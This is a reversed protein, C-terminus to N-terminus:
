RSLNGVGGGTKSELRQLTQKWLPLLGQVLVALMQRDFESLSQLFGNWGAMQRTDSVHRRLGAKVDTMGEVSM